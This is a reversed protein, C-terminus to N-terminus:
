HLDASVPSMWTVQPKSSAPEHLTRLARLHELRPGAPSGEAQTTEERTRWGWRCTTSCRSTALRRDVDRGQSFLVMYLHLALLASSLPGPGHPARPAPGPPDVDARGTTRCPRIPTELDDVGLATMWARRVDDLEQGHDALGTARTARRRFRHLRGDDLFRLADLIAQELAVRGSPWDFAKLYRGSRNRPTRGCPSSRSTAPLAGGSRASRTAGPRCSWTMAGCRAVYFPHLRCM